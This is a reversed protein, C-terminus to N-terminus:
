RSGDGACRGATDRRQLDEVLDVDVLNSFFTAGGGM